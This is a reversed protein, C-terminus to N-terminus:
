TVRQCRASLVIVNEDEDRKIFCCLSPITFESFRYNFHFSNQTKAMFSHLLFM